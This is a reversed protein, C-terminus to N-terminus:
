SSYCSRPRQRVPSPIIGAENVKVTVSAPRAGATPARAPVNVNSTRRESLLSSNFKRTVSQSPTLKFTVSAQNLQCHAFMFTNPSREGGSTVELLLGIILKAPGPM